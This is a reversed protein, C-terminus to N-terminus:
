YVNSSRSVHTCDAAIFGNRLLCTAKGIYVQFYTTGLTYPHFFQFFREVKKWISSSFLSPPNKSIERFFIAILNRSPYYLKVTWHGNGTEIYQCNWKEQKMADMKMEYRKEECPHPCWPLCLMLLTKYLFEPCNLIKIEVFSVDELIVRSLREILIFYM